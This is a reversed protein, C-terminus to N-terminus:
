FTTGVYIIGVIYTVILVGTFITLLIRSRGVTLWDLLHITGAGWGALLILALYIQDYQRYAESLLQGRVNM